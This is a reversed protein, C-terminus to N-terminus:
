CTSNVAIKLLKQDIPGSCTVTAKSRRPNIPIPPPDYSINAGQGRYTACHRIAALALCSDAAEIDSTTTFAIRDDDLTQIGTETRPVFFANGCGTTLLALTLVFRRMGETDACELM